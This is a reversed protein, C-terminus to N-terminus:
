KNTIEFVVGASVTTGAQLEVETGELHYNGHSFKVEGEQQDKTVNSGVKINKAEYYGGNTLSQNQIYITGEDLYPIMNHASICVSTESNGSYSTSYGQYSLVEGTRRNYFSITAFIGGTDVHIDGNDERIISANLFRKPRETNIMMSPDGFCHYIEATYRQRWKYDAYSYAENCRKLGQDLIQGLRYTPTPTPSYSSPNIKGFRPRLNISPWIADFMGEALVDNPGSYSIFSSGFIAVCGENSKLFCECFCGKSYFNGTSCCISFIVPLYNRNKLNLISRSKYNPSAWESASGHGRYLVYFSKQNICNSIEVSDGKWAFEPKRLENPIEEGYAYEKSYNTPYIKNGTRYVRTVTDLINHNLLNERIRESTLVFRRDEYGDASQLTGGHGDSKAEDQFYACHTGKKYFLDDVVPNKEYNIIKDVVTMAEDATNVLIRGRFIDPTYGGNMCGYYLDTLYSRLIDDFYDLRCLSPVDQGGGFLLLFDIDDSEYANRIVNKVATTDWSERIETKVDFGLTRKWESFRNLAVAYKPTSVILYKNQTYGTQQSASRKLSEQTSYNLAINNLFTDGSKIKNKHRILSNELTSNNFIIDYQIKTFVRVLKNTYDYQIPAICVDLLRQDRYCDDRTLPILQSPFFGKFDKIPQVSKRSFSDRSSDFQLPRAPSLEMPIEIYSSDTLVVRAGADPVAFTDWRSLVAPEGVKNSPWFGDIMISKANIYLSDDQTFINSFHYTVTVGNQTIEVDRTPTTNDIEKSVIGTQLCMTEQASTSIASVFVLIVIFIRRNM